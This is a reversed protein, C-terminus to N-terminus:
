QGLSKSNKRGCIGGKEAFAPNASLTRGCVRANRLSQPIEPHYQEVIGAFV